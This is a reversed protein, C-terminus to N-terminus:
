FPSYRSYTCKGTGGTEVQLCLFSGSHPDCGLIRQNGIIEHFRVMYLPQTSPEGLNFLIGISFAQGKCPLLGNQDAFVINKKLSSFNRHIFISAVICTTVSATM